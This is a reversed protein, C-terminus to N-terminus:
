RRPRRVGLREFIRDYEGSMVLQTFIAYPDHVDGAKRPTNSIYLIVIKRQKSSGTYCVRLRGKKVRFCSSLAGSLGKGHAFPDHPIIKDLLEEVMNFLTVKSNTSDGSELCRQADEHIRRYAREATATLEIAYRTQM